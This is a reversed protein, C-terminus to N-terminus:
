ARGESSPAGLRALLSRAREDWTHKAAAERRAAAALSSGRDPSSLVDLIARALEHVDGPTVLRATVGDELVEGIQGLDSAVIPRTLAMYEFIKTPSGFFAHNRLPTHPSVLVDCEALRRLALDHRLPGTWEIRHGVGLQESLARCAAREDGDGVMVLSVEEPLLALAKVVVEAGHWPGFTGAWGLRPGSRDRNARAGRVATDLARLDVANAVVAVKSAAAGAEVAMRAAVASVASVVAARAVIWREMAVLVPDLLRELAFQTQWNDRVWVESSNWELVLPIRSADAIRAGALLFPGHRQYILAPRLRRALDLGVRELPHNCALHDVDGNVRHSRPPPDLVVIEDVVGRLQEPPPLRTILANRFGLERFGGLIGSIHTTAGGFGAANGPWISVIWDGASPAAGAIPRRGIGSWAREASFRATERGIAGMARLGDFAIRGVRAAAQARSLRRAAGAREDVIVRERAPLVALALEYLQPNSQRRWDVSHVIVGDIRAERGLKRVRQPPALLSERPLVVANELREREAFREAASTGSAAVIAWRTVDAGAAFRGNPRADVSVSPRESM